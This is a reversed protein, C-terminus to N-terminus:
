KAVMSRRYLIFTNQPRPPKGEGNRRIRDARRSTHSEDLLTEIDMGFDYSSFYVMQEDSKNTELRTVKNPEPLEPPVFTNASSKTRKDLSFTYEGKKQKSSRPM